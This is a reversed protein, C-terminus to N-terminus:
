DSYLSEIIPCRPAIGGECESSITKLTRELRRLDKIKNRVDDLHELTISKVTGCDYGADDALELLAQIQELSFGLERSRRIFGLRKAHGSDYIRHGGATRPPAPMLGIKEYYRITEINCGTRSSLVGISFGDHCGTM